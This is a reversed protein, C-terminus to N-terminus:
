FNRLSIEEPLKGDGRAAGIWIRKLQLWTSERARFGLELWISNNYGLPDREGWSSFISWQCTRADARPQRNGAM